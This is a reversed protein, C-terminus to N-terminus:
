IFFYFLKRKIDTFSTKFSLSDTALSGCHIARRRRSFGEKETKKLWIVFNNVVMIQNFFGKKALM